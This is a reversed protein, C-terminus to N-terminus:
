GDDSALLLDDRLYRAIVDKMKKMKQEDAPHKGYLENWRSGLTRSALRTPEFTEFTYIVNPPAMGAITAQHKWNLFQWKSDSKRVLIRLTAIRLWFRQPGENGAPLSDLDPIEAVQEATLVDDEENGLRFEMKTDKAVANWAVKQDLIKGNKDFELDKWEAFFISMGPEVEGLSQPRTLETAALANGTLGKGGLNIGRCQQLMEAIQDCVARTVVIELDKAHRARWRTGDSTWNRLAPGSTKDALVEAIEAQSLEVEAASAVDNRMLTKSRIFRWVLTPINGSLLRKTLLWRAQEESLASAQKLTKARRVDLCIAARAADDKATEFKKASSPDDLKAEDVLDDLHPTDKTIEAFLEGPIRQRTETPLRGARFLSHLELPDAYSEHASAYRLGSFHLVGYKLWPEDTLQQPMAKLRELTQKLLANHDLADFESPDVAKGGPDLKRTITLFQRLAFERGAQKPHQPSRHDYWAARLARNQWAFAHKIQPPPMEATWPIMQNPGSLPLNKDADVFHEAVVQIRHRGSTTDFEARGQDDTAKVVPSGASGTPWLVVKANRIPAGVPDRVIFVAKVAADLELGFEPEPHGQGGPGGEGALSSRTELAPGAPLRTDGEAPQYGECSATVHVRGRHLHPFTARGNADTTQPAV